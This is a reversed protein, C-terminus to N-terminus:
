VIRNRRPPGCLVNWSAYAWYLTSWTYKHVTCAIFNSIQFRPASGQLRMSNPTTPRLIWYSPYEQVFLRIDFTKRAQQLHSSIPQLAGGLTQKVHPKPTKSTYRAKNWIKIIIKSQTNVNNYSSILYFLISISRDFNLFLCSIKIAWGHRLFPLLQPGTRM